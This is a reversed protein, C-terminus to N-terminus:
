GRPCTHEVGKPMVATLVPASPNSGNGFRKHEVGKPMVATLVEYAKWAPAKM